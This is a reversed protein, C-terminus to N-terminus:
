KIEFIAFSGSITKEEKGQNFKVTPPFNTKEFSDVFFTQNLKGNQDYSEIRYKGSYDDFNSLTSCSVLFLSLLLIYKM